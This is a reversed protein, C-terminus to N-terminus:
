AADWEFGSKDTGLCLCVFVCVSYFVSSVCYQTEQTLTSHGSSTCM